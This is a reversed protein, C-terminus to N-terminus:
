NEEKLPVTHHGTFVPTNRIREITIPYIDLIQSELRKLKSDFLSLYHFLLIFYKDTKVDGFEWKGNSLKDKYNTWTKIVGEIKFFPPLITEHTINM